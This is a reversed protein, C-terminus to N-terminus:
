VNTGYTVYVRCREWGSVWWIVRVVMAFVFFIMALLVMGARGGRRPTTASTCAGCMPSPWNQGSPIVPVATATAVIGCGGL